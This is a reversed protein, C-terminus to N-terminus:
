IVTQWAEIQERTLPAENVTRIRLLDKARKLAKALRLAREHPICVYSLAPKATLAAECEAILCDLEASPFLDTM